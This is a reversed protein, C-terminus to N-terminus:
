RPASAALAATLVGLGPGVELVLDGPAAGSAAVIRAPLGPDVLFNQGLRRSPRAGLIRLAERVEKRNRPVTVTM